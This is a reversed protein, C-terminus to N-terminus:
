SKKSHTVVARATNWGVAAVPLLCGPLRTLRVSCDKITHSRASVFSDSYSPRRTGYSSMRRRSGCPIRARQGNDTGCHTQTVKALSVVKRTSVTDEAQCITVDKKKARIESYSSRLLRPGGSAPVRRELSGPVQRHKGSGNENNRLNYMDHNKRPEVVLPPNGLQKRLDRWPRWM